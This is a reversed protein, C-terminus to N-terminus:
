TCTKFCGYKKIAKSGYTDTKRHCDICLTRGNSLEFRLEPYYAFPKIHDANILGGKKYCNICTYKDREFVAKRWKKLETSGRILENLSSVGGKWNPCKENRRGYMANNKGSNALGIKSKHAETLLSGKKRALPIMRCKDSCFKAKNKRSVIVSYEVMCITCIKNVRNKLAEGIRKKTIETHKFGAKRM